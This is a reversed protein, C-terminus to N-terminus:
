LRTIYVDFRITKGSLSYSPPQNAFFTARRPRKVVVRKGATELAATMLKEESPINTVLMQLMQLEKKVRASKRREPFM